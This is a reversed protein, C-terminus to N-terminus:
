RVKRSRELVPRQGEADFAGSVPEDQNLDAIPGDGPTDSQHKLYDRSKHGSRKLAMAREAIEKQTKDM